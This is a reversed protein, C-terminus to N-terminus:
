VIATRVRARFTTGERHVDLSIRFEREGYFDVAERWAENGLEQLTKGWVEYDYSVDQIRPTNHELLARGVPDGFASM